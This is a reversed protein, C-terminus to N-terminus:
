KGEKCLKAKIILDNVVAKKIFGTEKTMEMKEQKSLMGVINIYEAIDEYKVWGGRESKVMQSDSLVNGEFKYELKYRNM